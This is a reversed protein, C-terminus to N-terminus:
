RADTVKKADHLSAPRTPTASSTGTSESASMPDADPAGSAPGDLKHVFGCACGVGKLGGCVSCEEVGFMCEAETCTPRGHREEPTLTILAIKESM